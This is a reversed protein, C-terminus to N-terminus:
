VKRLYFIAQDGQDTANLEQAALEYRQLEEASFLEEIKVTTKTREDILSIDRKYLESGWFQFATSNYVVKDLVFGAQETLLQLSQKNYIFFHRPADLQIWNEKYLEWAKGVVPIAIMLYGGKKLLAYSKRLEDLPDDMHEFVHHMMLLDYSNSKLESLDKNLIKVGHGYDYPNSIYKDVGGINTFGLNFMNCVLVGNGCGIDLIKQSPLINMPKLFNLVEINRKRYQKKMRMDGILRKLLPLQKLPTVKHTFSYYHEPYYAAITAPIDIIQITKCDPCQAYDFKERTGFMMERVQFTGELKANCIKCNKM